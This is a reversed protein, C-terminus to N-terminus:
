GLNEHCLGRDRRLTPDISTRLALDFAALAGACDGARARGRAAQAEAGGAEQRRLTFQSSSHAPGSPQPAKPQAGAESASLLAGLVCSSVLLGVRAVRM